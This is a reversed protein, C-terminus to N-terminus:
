KTVIPLYLKSVPGNIVINSRAQYSGFESSWYIYAGRNIITVSDEAGAPQAGSLQM